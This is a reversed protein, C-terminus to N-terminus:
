RNPWGPLLRRTYPLYAMGGSLVLSRMHCTWAKTKNHEVLARVSFDHWAASMRRHILRRVRAPPCLGLMRHYLSMYALAYRESKSLSGPTDHIRFSPKDVVCIRSGKLALKFALWTWEAYANHDRFDEVQVDSSRYLANASNLWNAAFLATLPDTSVPSLNSYVIEDVGNAHRYGNTVVLASEKCRAIAALRLDIAGELYEDDDDLTGFFPATVCERGRLLAHPLSATPEFRCHVDFQELLWDTLARDNRGGNVVVVIRVSQLSANRISAIARKLLSARAAIATTPIIIDVAPRVSSM